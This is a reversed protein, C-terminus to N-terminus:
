PGRNPTLSVRLGVAPNGERDIFRVCGLWEHYQNVVKFVLVNTGKRLPVPPTPDLAVLARARVDKYIEHGNLYVKSQDDSGVQLLLDDRETASQVYCVAYAVHRMSLRGALRNFDLVPEEAHHAQWTYERSGVRKHEGARPHLETEGPIQERELAQVTTEGPELPLPTLVLWDQVFGPAGIVPRQWTAQRRRAEQEQRDWLAVQKPAAAEWIKVTGDGSGTIIRQGDSTVAVFGVPGTHGKLTLLERGSVADWVSATGDGSGTVLRQGDPTVAVSAGPEIHGELKRVEGGSMADWVRVTGDWSGTVIRQGDPTVVVAGVPATHGKLLRLERGSVMDWLRATGDQSGTILSRGDATVAVSFVPGTHGRFTLVGHGSAADWLTATGDWSGTVIRQGDPTVTVAYIWDTQGELKRLEYGSAADYLRVRGDDCGTLILQGDPTIAMASVAHAQGQLTLLQRHSVVDWLRVVMGDASRTVLRQGNPTVAVRCFPVNHVDLTRTGRGSFRDWVRATGDMSATALRQGDPSVAVCSVWRRHGNLIMMERGSAMDRVNAMGGLYGTLLQQGDPTLALSLLDGHGGPIPVIRGSEMDWIKAWGDLSGTVVKKGDRTVAVASVHGTPSSIGHYLTKLLRGDDANWIKATRDDSGMVVWKGNGSVAISRVPAMHGTKGSYLTSAVLLPGQTQPPFLLAATSLCWVPSASDGQLTLLIQGTAADWVRPVCDESGTIVGKSDPTVAVAWVPGSNQFLLPRLEQGKAADWIRATGDTSGTVLWQGNPAYAVSTVESRHGTLCFLERGTTTDWVHTTGDTVGTVLRQGDPAFALATVGGKHGALTLHEVRSLRQWYYWEFGREPFDATAELLDRVRLINHNDWAAQLNGMDAAYAQQRAQDAEKKAEDEATRALQKAAEAEERKTTAERKADMAHAALWTSAVVAAVLLSIFSAAVTVPVWYKRAFKRLRYAASPPCAEVPEDALYHQLDRALSSATEYRRTRDKELCKMVIWDLEGRVLKTLKAPDTRRQQSITALAAGSSSLRRSPRPPEEEKILRLIEDFAAEQLRKHELPTSGTLLEYLLVGLAYLDSRTDVGLQSMEAQEPAMYEFTGVITGYQTFLTRETLRQEIAKAVGFDIVKPVPKGDYLCVMVNSPKLDRHIIGKQHAHQIAQCVPIFLELRERPTLRNDDCYRTISVGHVLEMVFYPRGTATAGADLVRAIHLHDMLALAQREAEFRAVVQASDMGPKIIKLAVKRRVPEEQEAMYVIGMGGEGIQQLLKYPGIRTGPEELIPRHDATAAPAPAAAQLFSGVKPQANLLREVSRRLETDRGCVDELYAARAEPSRKELAAFFISEVASLNDM